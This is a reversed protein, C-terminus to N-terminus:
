GRSKSDDQCRSSFAVDSPSFGRAISLLFGVSFPVAPPHRFYCTANGSVSAIETAQDEIVFGAVGNDGTLEADLDSTDVHCGLVVILEERRFSHRGPLALHTASCSATISGGQCATVATRASRTRRM